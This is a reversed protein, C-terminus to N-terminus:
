KSLILPFPLQAVIQIKLNPQQVMLGCDKDALEAVEVVAMWRLGILDRM